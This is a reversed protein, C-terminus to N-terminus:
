HIYTHIRTHIYTHIHTHIYTHIRTHIYTHILTNTYTNTLYPPTHIPTHIHTHMGTSVEGTNKNIWLEVGAEFSHTWFRELTTSFHDLYLVGKDVLHNKKFSQQRRLKLKTAEEATQKEQFMLAFRANPMPSALGPVHRMSPTHRLQKKTKFEDPPVLTSVLEADDRERLYKM